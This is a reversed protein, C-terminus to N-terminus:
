SKYIYFTNPGNSTTIVISLSGSDELTLVSSTLNGNTKFSTGWYASGTMGYLMLNGRADLAAGQANIDPMLPTSWIPIGSKYLFMNGNTKLEMQYQNNNSFISQGAKLGEGLSMSNPVSRSGTGLMYLLQTSFVPQPDKAPFTPSTLTQWNGNNLVKVYIPYGPNVPCGYSSSLPNRLCANTLPAIVAVCKPDGCWALYAGNHGATNSGWVAWNGPWYLVLNGDPQMTLRFRGDASILSQGSQLSTPSTLTDSLDEATANVNGLVAIETSSQRGFILHSQIQFPLVALASLTFWRM